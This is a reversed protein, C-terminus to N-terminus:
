FKVVVGNTQKLSVPAAHGDFFVFNARRGHKYGAQDADLRELPPHNYNFEIDAALLTAAPASVANEKRTVPSPFSVSNYANMGYSIYFTNNPAAGEQLRVPCAYIGSEFDSDGDFDWLVGFAYPALLMCFNNEAPDDDAYWAYPLHEENDGIYLHTALHIQRLNGLCQVALAKRKAAALAPLLLAALIAIIAIVVLLEVLTFANKNRIEMSISLARVGCFYCM